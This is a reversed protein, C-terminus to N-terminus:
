ICKFNKVMVGGSLSQVEAIHKLHCFATKTVKNISYTQVLYFFKLIETVGWEWNNIASIGSFLSSQTNTDNLLSIYNHTMLTAISILLKSESSGM